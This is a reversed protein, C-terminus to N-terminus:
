KYGVEIKQVANIKEQSHKRKNSRKNNNLNVGEKGAVKAALKMKM